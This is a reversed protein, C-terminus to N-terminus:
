IGLRLLQHMQHRLIRSSWLEAYRRRLVHLKALHVSRKGGNSGIRFALRVHGAPLPGPAYAHSCDVATQEVSQTDFRSVSSQKRLFFCFHGAIFGAVRGNEGVFQPLARETPPRHDSLSHIDIARPAFDDADHRRARGEFVLAGLDPQGEPQVGGIALVAAAVSKKKDPSQSVTGRLLRGLRLELREDSAPALPNTDRVMNESRQGLVTAVNEGHLWQLLFDDTIGA